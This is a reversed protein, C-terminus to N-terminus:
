ESPIGLYEDGRELMEARCDMLGNKFELYVQNSKDTEELRKWTRHILYLTILSKYEEPIELVPVAVYNTTSVDAELFDSTLVMTTDNTISAIEYFKDPNTGTGIEWKPQTHVYDTFLTGTGVVSTAGQTFASTGTTYYTFPRVLHRVTTYVRIDRETVADTDSHTTALTGDSGRVCGTLTTATTNTYTIVESGIVVRGRTPFNATSVVTITVIAATHDGDLTTAGASSSLAPSIHLNKNFLSYIRPNMSAESTFEQLRRYEAFDKYKMEYISQTGQVWEVRVPRIAKAPLDYEEQRAVSSFSIVQELCGTENTIIDKALNAWRIYENITPVSTSSPVGAETEEASDQILEFINAM